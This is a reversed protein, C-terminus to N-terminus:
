PMARTRARFFPSILCQDGICQLIPPEDYAFTLRARLVPINWHTGEHYHLIRCPGTHSAVHADAKLLSPVCAREM